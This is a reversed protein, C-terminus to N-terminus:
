GRRGVEVIEVPGGPVDDDFVGVALRGTRWGEVDLNSRNKLLLPGDAFADHGHVVHRGHTPRDDDNRYRRWQVIEARQRDLPASPDVCAHVFVRHSDAYILPLAALWDRHSSPVVSVDVPGTPAHGYSVLTQGGGSELWGSVRDPRRIAELMIAEHNGQLCIWSWGAPPGAMLCRVVAASEHGRDVYDGLFVVKGPAQASLAVLAAELLDFRGHLDPIAYTRSM